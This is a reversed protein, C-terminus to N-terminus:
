IVGADPLDEMTKQMWEAAANDYLAQLKEEYHDQFFLSFRDAAEAAQWLYEEKEPFTGKDKMYQFFQRKCAIEEARTYLNTKSEKMLNLYFKHYEYAFDEKNIADAERRKRINEGAKERIM